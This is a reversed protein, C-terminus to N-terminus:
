SREWYPIKKGVDNKKRVSYLQSWIIGSKLFGESILDPNEAELEWNVSWRWSLLNLLLECAEAMLERNPASSLIRIRL